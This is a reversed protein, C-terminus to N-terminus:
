ITVTELWNGAAQNSQGTLVANAIVAYVNHQEEEYNERVKM